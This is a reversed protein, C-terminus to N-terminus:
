RASFSTRIIKEDGFPQKTKVNNARPSTTATARRPQNSVTSRSVDNNRRKQTPPPEEPGEEEESRARKHQTLRHSQEQTSRTKETTQEKAHRADFQCRFDQKAQEKRKCTECNEHPARKAKWINTAVVRPTRPDAWMAKRAFGFMTPEM